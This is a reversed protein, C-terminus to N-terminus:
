VTSNQENMRRELELKGIEKKLEKALEEETPLYLLYKSAFMQNNENLVSYKVIAEDKESCLILGITPNDGENKYKDEFLRVYLDMQGIDQHTLEGLKLDILIFCKLYYNYFVLDIFFDKTETRIHKQRAVYAFGKGLELLFNSLNNILSKEFDRELYAGDASLGVFEFIYPNKIFEGASENLENAKENAEAIVANKDKSSLLREYYFSNIQRELARTSWNQEIAEKLYYKRAKTNKVKLLLRYHTWSLEDRLILKDNNRMNEAHIITKESQDSVAHGNEFNLYFQRFYKLNTVSFGDGFESTLKRSLTKVIYEGYNSASEGKQEEDVIQQGILWYAQIIAHNVNRVLNKRAEIIINRVNNVLSNNIEEM